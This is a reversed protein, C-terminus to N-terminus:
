RPSAAAARRVRLQCVLGGPPYAIRAGRRGPIAKQILLTGFGSRSPPTVPPGGTESWDIRVLAPNDPDSDWDVYAKGGVRSFAGSKLANTCLEHLALSLGMVDEGAIGLDPGQAEIREAVGLDSAVRNVVERLSAQEWSREQLHKVTDGLAVLREDIGRLRERPADRFSMRILAQVITLVNRVRHQLERELLARSEELQVRESVDTSQEVVIPGGPNASDRQLLLTETWLPTGSKTCQRLRGSWAGTAALRAAIEQQPAPFSTKLLDHALRGQAEEATFGYLERCGDSWHLIEGDPRRVLVPLHALLSALAIEV